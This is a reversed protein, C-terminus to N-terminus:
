EGAAIATVVLQDGDAALRLTVTTKARLDSLKAEKGRLTIRAGGALPLRELRAGKKEEALARARVAEMEARDRAAQAERLRQRGLFPIASAARARVEAARAEELRAAQRELAEKVQKREEETAPRNRLTVTVTGAAADVEELTAGRVVLSNERRDVEARPAPAQAANGGRARAGDPVLGAGVGALAVALLAAAAVKVKKLFMAKLVGEALAAVPATVGGAAARVTSAVLTAPVCAPSANHSLVAALVGASLPV